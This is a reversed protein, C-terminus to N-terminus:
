LQIKVCHSKEDEGQADKVHPKVFYLVRSTATVTNGPVMKVRVGVASHRGPDQKRRRYKKCAHKKCM